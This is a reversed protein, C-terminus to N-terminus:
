IANRRDFGPHEAKSRDRRYLLRERAPMGNARGSRHEGGAENVAHLAIAELAPNDRQADAAPLADRKGQLRDVLGCASCNAAFPAEGILSLAAVSGTWAEIAPSTPVWGTTRNM